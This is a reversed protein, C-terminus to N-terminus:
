LWNQEINSMLAFLDETKRVSLKALSINLWCDSLLGVQWPGPRNEAAVRLQIM